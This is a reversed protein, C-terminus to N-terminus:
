HRHKIPNNMLLLHMPCQMFMRWGGDEWGLGWEISYFTAAQLICTQHQESSLSRDWECYNCNCVVGHTLASKIDLLLHHHSRLCLMVEALSAIIPLKTSRGIGNIVGSVQAYWWHESGRWRISELSLKWTNSSQTRVLSSCRSGKPTFRRLVNQYPITRYSLHHFNYSNCDM